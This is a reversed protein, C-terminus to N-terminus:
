TRKSFFIAHSEEVIAKMEAEIQALKEAHAQNLDACEKKHLEVANEHAAVALKYEKSKSVKYAIYLAGPVLGLLLLLLCTGFSFPKNRVPAVPPHPLKPPMTNNFEEVKAEYAAQHKVLDPYVADQTERSMTIQKGNLSLLEWGFSEYHSITAQTGWPGPFLIKSERSM